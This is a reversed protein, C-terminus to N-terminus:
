LVIATTCWLARGLPFQGFQSTLGSKTALNRTQTKSMEGLPFLIHALTEQDLHYLVYSQDKAPGAGKFLAFSGDEMQVRRAYHGTAVYDCGLEKRRQQLLAFKLHRNCAICPNPTKGELYSRCFPEIVYSSFHKSANLVYHPFGLARLAAPGKGEQRFGCAQWGSTRHM